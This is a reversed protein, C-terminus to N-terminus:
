LKYKRISRYPVTREDTEARWCAPFHNKRCVSSYDCYDCYGGPYIFFLGERIGKLLLLITEKIRDGLPSQWCDGPFESRDEEGEGAPWNPAIFYFSAKEPVPNGIGATYRLYPVAMLLYLPPQLRKGRVASLPLNRDDSDARKGSKFKYDIVRFLGTGPRIDIRDLVGHFFIEGMDESLDQTFYGTADVELSHPVFGASATESLDKSIMSGLLAVIREQLMEWLLPYGVPNTQQFEHFVESADEELFRKIDKEPRFLDVGRGYFRKLIRHCLNGIDSPPLESIVDPRELRKLHLVHRAFYSFPCRAYGELSTPSFGSRTLRNWHREIPGTIGDFGTLGSTMKEHLRLSQAGQKYLGPILNFRSLITDPDKGELINRIALEKPTLLRNEFFESCSFKDVLRRPVRTEQIPAGRRMESLYWSPVRIQGSEDTRQYFIYVRERASSLLLYFLLKEEEYGYLKETIKYGLGRELVGRASDRLFPDERINRPFVTENMGLIFLVKFPLGRAAMADLVQVGAINDDGIPLSRSDLSRKFTELFEMRSVEHSIRDLVKLSLLAEMIFDETEMYKGILASLREVYDGWSSVEPLTLFDTELSLVLRKLGEIEIGPIDRVMGEEEEEGRLTFGDKIYRDLKHWEEIGRSIGVTRTIMDWIDPRPEIGDPCFSWTKCYYSSALDIIDSRRFDGKLISILLHVTKTVQYRGAPEGASSVFPIRHSIFIRKILPAYDGVERAVVGIDSFSYGERDVLQLIGKAVATVEDEAGSTSVITALHGFPFVTAGSAGTIVPGGLRFISEPRQVLGQIYGEFFRKAFSFAPMEQIFPFYLSTPYHQAIARFLDYQVQTLDYFGYYIIEKFAQLYGSSPVFEAAIEPLDTYDIFDFDKKRLLFGKYLLILPTIKELDEDSFIGERIAEIVSDPDVRADRLDQLTTWLAACGEATEAFKRFTEAGPLDTRLTHRLFEIYFFDDQELHRVLGYQEEYLKLALNHFTLFHVGMLDMRREVTLLFKIRSRIRGSPLIVAVPALPDESKLSLINKCLAEELHPHFNGLYVKLM